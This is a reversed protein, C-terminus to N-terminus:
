LKTLLQVVFPKAGLAVKCDSMITKHPNLGFDDYEAPVILHTQACRVMEPSRNRISISKAIQYPTRANLTPSQAPSTHSPSGAATEALFFSGM